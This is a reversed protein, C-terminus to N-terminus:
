TALGGIRYRGRADTRGVREPRRRGFAVSSAAFASVRAGAVPRRTGEELITGTVAAARVLKLPIDVTEGKKVRVNERRAAFEEKWVARVERSGPAVGVIEYRGSADSEAAVEDAAVIVGAVPKGASDVITGRVTGGARLVVREEPRRELQLTQMPVLGPAQIYLVRTGDPAAPVSFLGDQGTRSE